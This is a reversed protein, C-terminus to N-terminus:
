HVATTRRPKVPVTRNVVAWNQDKGDILLLEGDANGHVMLYFHLRHTEM